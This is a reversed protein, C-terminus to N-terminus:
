SHCDLGQYDHNLGLKVRFFRENQQMFSFGGGRDRETEESGLNERETPVADLVGYMNPLHEVM